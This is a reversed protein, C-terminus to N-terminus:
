EKLPKGQADKNISGVLILIGEIFGWIHGVGCTCITVIIQAIGIGTYGLYFRHIGFGGIFVGLLGAAMKSKADGLPSAGYGVKGQPAGLSAGCFACFFVGQLNEKGCSPCYVTGSGSVNISKGCKVCFQGGEQNEQGCNSCQM